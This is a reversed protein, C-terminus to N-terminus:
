NYKPRAWYCKIINDYKNNTHDNDWHLNTLLFKVVGITEITVDKFSIFCGLKVLGTERSDIPCKICWSGKPLINFTAFQELKETILKTVILDTTRKIIPVFLTSSVIQVDNFKYKKIKFDIDFRTVGYGLNMLLSYLEPKLVAITRNTQQYHVNYIVKMIGVSDPLIQNLFDRIKDLSWYSYIIYIPFNM